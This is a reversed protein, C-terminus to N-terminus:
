PQVIFQKNSTLTGSSTTVTVFGTTAGSPVTARLYTGSVVTATAPTGNFSVSSSSTFGQGLFGITSGVKGAYPILSVFAPLGANWSYLVGCGYQGCAQNTGTGGHVTNGYLEGNTHQFPALSYFGTTYDFNYLVSFSGGPTVQFLTGCGSDSFCNTNNISGAIAAAGYFNGDTAQVVGAWPHAGDTTGNLKYLVTFTGAPTIQFVNGPSGGTNQTTGYFNGDSGQFLPAIPDYGDNVGDLSHLVTVMGAPTMKFVVGDDFTGGIETTGYFNGDAGLVLTARQCGDTQHFHHLVQLFGGVAGSIRYITGCSAKSGGGYPTTGYFHGDAGYIPPEEPSDGDTSSTFSHLVTLSGTQSIDFITGSGNLGGYQTTGIFHGDPRLTLGGQPQIGCFAQPCFDYLVRMEGSPTIKFVTGLGYAGGSTSQGYLAGDTGQALSGSPWIPDGTRNGLDYVVSYKQAYAPIAACLAALVLVALASVGRTEIRTMYGGENAKESDILFGKSDPGTTLHRAV